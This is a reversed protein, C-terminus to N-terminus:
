IVLLIVANGTSVGDELPLVTAQTANELFSRLAPASGPAQVRCCEAKVAVLCDEFDDWGRLCTEKVCEADVSAVQLFGLSETFAKQLAVLDVGKSSVYFVDMFSKASCWLQVDGLMAAVRLKVM